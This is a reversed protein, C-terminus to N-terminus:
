NKTSLYELDIDNVYIIDKNTTKGKDIKGM